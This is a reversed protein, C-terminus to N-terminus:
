GAPWGNLWDTLWSVPWDAFQTREISDDKVGFAVRLMSKEIHLDVDSKKKPKVAHMDNDESSGTSIEKNSRRHRLCLM